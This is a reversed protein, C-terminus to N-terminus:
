QRGLGYIVVRETTWSGAVFLGQADCDEELFWRRSLRRMTGHCQALHCNGKSKGISLHTLRPETEHRDPGRGPRTAGSARERAASPLLLHSTGAGQPRLPRAKPLSRTYSIFLHAANGDTRARPGAREREERAREPQRAGASRVIDRVARSEVVLAVVDLGGLHELLGFLAQRARRAAFAGTEAEVSAGSEELQAVHRVGGMPKAVCAADYGAIGVREAAIVQGQQARRELREAVRPGCCGLAGVCLHRRRM